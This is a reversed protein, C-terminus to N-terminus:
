IAPRSPWTCARRCRSRPKTWIATGCSPSASSSIRRPCSLRIESRSTHLSSRAANALTEESVAYRDRRLALLTQQQLLHTRQALSGCREVTPRLHDLMAFGDEVQGTWYYVQLAEFHVQLWEGFRAPDPAAQAHGADALCPDGYAELLAQRAQELMALAEPFRYQERLSNAVKRQLRM